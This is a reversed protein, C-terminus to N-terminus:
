AVRLAGAFLGDIKRGCATTSPPSSSHLPVVPGAARHPDVPDLRNALPAHIEMTSAPRDAPAQEAGAHQELTRMNDLRDALKVLLVRIDQSMALLMKRFSEEGGQQEQRSRRM